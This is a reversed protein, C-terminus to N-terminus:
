FDVDEVGWCVCILFFGFWGVEVYLNFGFVLIFCFFSCWWFGVLGLFVVCVVWVLVWFYGLCWCLCVFCVCFGFGCVGGGGFGVCFWGCCVGL